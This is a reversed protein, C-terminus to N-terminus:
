RDALARWFTVGSRDVLRPLVIVSRTRLLIPEASIRDVV